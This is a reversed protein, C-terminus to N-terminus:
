IGKLNGLKRRPLIRIKTHYGLKVSDISPVNQDPRSDPYPIICVTKVSPYYAQLEGNINWRHSSTSKRMTMRFIVQPIRYHFQRDLKLHMLERFPMTTLLKEFSELTRESDLVNNQIM